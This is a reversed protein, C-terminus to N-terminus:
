IRDLAQALDATLDRIDELGVSLRIAEPKIGAALQEELSMQRHTTSAPHLLCTRIDGVHVVLSILGIAKQLRVAADLGGKVGFTLVGSQGQPLYKQALEYYKDGPLGPYLVWDVKPHNQLFTALALANSSHRAM